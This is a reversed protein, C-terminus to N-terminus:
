SAIAMEPFEIKTAIICTDYRKIGKNDVFSSTEIRGEIYIKNGPQLREIVYQSIDATVKIQHNETHVTKDRGKKVMELTAVTFAWYGTNHNANKTVPLSSVEGLLIVKNVGTTTSM